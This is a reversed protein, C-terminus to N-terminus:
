EFYRNQNTNLSTEKIEVDEKTSGKITVGNFKYRDGEKITFLYGRQMSDLSYYERKIDMKMELSFYGRSYYLSKINESSLLMMFDQKTTDLQGFEEPIDLQEDLVFKSFLQNGYFDTYWPHKVNEDAQAFVFFLLLLSILKKTM